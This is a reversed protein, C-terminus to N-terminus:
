GNAAGGIPEGPYMDSVAYREHGRQRSERPLTRGIQGIPQVTKARLNLRHRETGNRSQWVIGIM